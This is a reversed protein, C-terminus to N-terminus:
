SIQPSRGAKGLSANVKVPTSYSATFEFGTQTKGIAAKWEPPYAELVPGYVAASAAMLRAEEASVVPDGRKTREVGLTRAQTYLDHGGLGGHKTGSKAHAMTEDMMQLEAVVGNPLRVNITRDTYGVDTVKWDEYTTEFYKALEAAIKGTKGPTDIIFTGRATDTVRAVVGDRQMVKDRFRNMGKGTEDIKSGPNKFYIGPIRTVVVDAINALQDQAIPAAAAAQKETKIPSKDAWDRKAVKVVADPGAAKTGPKYGPVANKMAAAYKSEAKTAGVVEVTHASINNADLVIEAETEAGRMLIDQPTAPIRVVVHEGEKAAAHAAFKSWKDAVSRSLSTAMPDMDAGNKWDDLQDKPMYRYVNFEHGLIKTAADELHSRYEFYGPMAQIENAAQRDGFNSVGGRWNQEAALIGETEPAKNFAEYLDAWQQPTADNPHGSSSSVEGGEGGGDTWRGHEDRPHKGEDFDKVVLEGDRSEFVTWDQLDEPLEAEDEPTWEPTEGFNDLAIYSDRTVPIGQQRMYDLLPHETNEQAAQAM